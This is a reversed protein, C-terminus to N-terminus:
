KQPAETSQLYCNLPRHRPPPLPFATAFRMVMLLHFCPVSHRVSEQELSSSGITQSWQVWDSPLATAWYYTTSPFSRDSTTTAFTDIDSSILTMRRYAPQPRRRNPCGACPVFLLMGASFQVTACLKDNQSRYHGSYFAIWSFVLFFLRIAKFRSSGGNGRASFPPRNSHLCLATYHLITWFHWYFLCVWYNIKRIPIEIQESSDGRIAVSNNIEILKWNWIPSPLLDDEVCRQWWFLIVSHGKREM